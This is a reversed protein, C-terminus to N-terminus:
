AREHEMEMKETVGVLVDTASSAWMSMLMGEDLYSDRESMSSCTRPAESVVEEEEVVDGDKRAGFVWAAEVVREGETDCKL